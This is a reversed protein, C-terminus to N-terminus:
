AAALTNRQTVSRAADLRERAGDLGMVYGEKAEDAPAEIVDGTLHAVASEILAKYM